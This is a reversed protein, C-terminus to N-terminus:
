GDPSEEKSSDNGDWHGPSGTGNVSSAVITISPIAIEIMETLYRVFCWLTPTSGKYPYAEVRFYGGILSYRFEMVRGFKPMAGSKM